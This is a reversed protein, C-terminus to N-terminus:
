KSKAYGGGTSSTEYMVMGTDSGNIAQVMAAKIQDKSLFGDEGPELSGELDNILEQKSRDDVWTRVKEADVIEIAFNQSGATIFFILGNSQSGYTTAVEAINAFDVAGPPVGDIPEKNPKGEDGPSLLTHTHHSGQVGDLLPSGDIKGSKTLSASTLAGPVVKANELKGNVITASAELSRGGSKVAQVAQTHLAQMQDGVQNALKNVEQEGFGTRDLLSIPSARCYQYPIVATYKQWLPDVSTFRGYEPEYLRVGFSGLGSEGDEERDIFGTRAGEGNATIVEGFPRYDMRELIQGQDSVVARTSGLHDSIVYEKGGAPRQIMRVGRAGFTNREIPWMALTNLPEGCFGGELGHFVTLPRKDAGLLSYVWALGTTQVGTASLTQRKQERENLPNFRYVWESSPALTADAECGAAINGQVSEERVRFRKVLGFPDWAYEEIRHTASYQDTKRRERLVMAGNAVYTLEDNFGASTVTNLWNPGSVPANQTGHTYTDVTWNQLDDSHSLQTRNGIPDYSYDEGAITGPLPRVWSILRNVGDYTYTDWTLADGESCQQVILGRSDYSLRQDYVLQNGATFTTLARKQQGAENYTFNTTMGIGPYSVNVVADRVDYTYVVDATLPKPVLDVGTYTPTASYGLGSQPTQVTWNAMSTWIREVRGSADYGYWTGHQGTPDVAHVSIPQNMSNYTYYTADFGVNETYRLLAEVRGREDYSMVMYHFPQGPHTRYAVVSPRGVLNRIGSNTPSLADWVSKPPIANFAVGREPPFEDYWVARLANEPFAAVNEFSLAPATLLPQEPWATVTHVVVNQGGGPPLAPNFRDSRSVNTLEACLQGVRHDHGAYLNPIPRVPDELLTRNRTSDNAVGNAIVRPELKDTFRTFVSPNPNTPYLVVGLPGTEYSMPDFYPGGILAGQVLFTGQDIKAEGTLTTRGLDDYEVFTVKGENAQQQNQSFRVRGSNDYAYSTVGQDPQYTYRVRGFDDYWYQTVQRKPNIVWIVRDLDDYGYITTLNRDQYMGHPPTETGLLDRSLLGGDYNMIEVVKRGRADFFSAAVKTAVDFAVTERRCYGDFLAAVDATLGFTPDTPVGYEVSRNVEALQAVVSEGANPNCANWGLSAADNVTKVATGAADFDVRTGYPADPAPAPSLTETIQNFGSYSMKKSSVTMSPLTNLLAHDAQGYNWRTETSRNEFGFLTMSKAHRSNYNGLPFKDDDASLYQDDIKAYMVSASQGGDIEITSPSPIDSHTFALTFDYEKRPGVERFTGELDLWVEAFEVRGSTVMDESTSIVVTWNAPDLGPENPRLALKDIHSSLDYVFANETVSWGAPPNFSNYVVPVELLTVPNASQDLVTITCQVDVGEVALLTMMLKASTVSEHEGRNFHVAGSWQTRANGEYMYPVPTNATVNVNDGHKPVSQSGGPPDYCPCAPDTQIRYEAVIGAVFEGDPFLPETYDLDYEPSPDCNGVCLVQYKSSEKRSYGQATIRKNPKVISYQHWIAVETQRTFDGPLWARVLRGIGDYQYASLYGNADISNIPQGYMNYTTVNDIEIEAPVISGGIAQDPKYTRVRQSVVTPNEQFMHHRAFLDIEEEDSDPVGPVQAFGRRVLKSLANGDVYSTKWDGNYDKNVTEGAPGVVTRPAVFSYGGWGGSTGYTFTNTYSRFGGAGHKTSSLVKGFAPNSHGDLIAAEDYEYETREVLNLGSGDYVSTSKQLNFLPFGCAEVEYPALSVFWSETGSIHHWAYDIEQQTMSNDAAYQLFKKLTAIKNWGDTIVVTSCQGGPINLYENHLRQVTRWTQDDPVQKLTTRSALVSGYLREFRNKITNNAGSYSGEYSYLKEPDITYEYLERGIPISISAQNVTYMERAVPLRILPYYNVGEQTLAVGINDYSTYEVNKVGGYGYQTSHFVVDTSRPTGIGIPKFDPLEALEYRYEEIVTNHPAQTPHIMDNRHTVVTVRKGGPPNTLSEESPELYEETRQLENSVNDYYEVAMVNSRNYDDSIFGNSLQSYGIYGDQDAYPQSYELEIRRAPEAIKTLNKSRVHIGVPTVYDACWHPFAAEFTGKYKREINSYEFETTRGVDDTIKTVLGTWSCFESDGYWAVDDNGPWPLNNQSFESYGDPNGSYLADEFQISTKRDHV